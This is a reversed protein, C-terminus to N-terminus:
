GYRVENFLGLQVIVDAADADVCDWDEPAGQEWLAQPNRAAFRQLGVAIVFRDITHAPSNESLGGHEDVEHITAIFGLLDDTLGEFCWRYHSCQSWYGIGGELATTFIGHLVKDPVTATITIEASM